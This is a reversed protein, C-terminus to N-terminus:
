SISLYMKLKNELEHTQIPLQIEQSGDRTELLHDEPVMRIIPITDTGEVSKLEEIINFSNRRTQSEDIFILDPQITKALDIGQKANFKYRTQIGKTNCYSTIIQIRDLNPSIVLVIPEPRAQMISISFTTGIGLNSAVSINGGLLYTLKKAITLGLGTGEKQTLKSFRKFLKPLDEESIGPGNDKIQFLIHDQGQITRSEITVEVKGSPTNTFKSANHILNNLILELKERDCYIFPSKLSPSLKYSISGEHTSQIFRTITSLLEDLNIKERSLPLSAHEIKSLDLVNKVLKQLREVQQNLDSLVQESETPLKLEPNQTLLYLNGEMITLPNKIEHSLMNIYETELTMLQNLHHNQSLLKTKISQRSIANKITKQLIYPEFKGKVLYEQVGLDLAANETLETDDGTLVIVPIKPFTKRISKITELGRSDPLNLDLLIIEYHEHDLKTLGDTLNGCETILGKINKMNSLQWKLLELDAINDEIILVQIEKIDM